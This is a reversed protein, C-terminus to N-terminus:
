RLGEYTGMKGLYFVLYTSLVNPTPVHKRM